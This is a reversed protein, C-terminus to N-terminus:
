QSVDHIQSLRGSSVFESSPLGLLFASTQMCNFGEGNKDGANSELGEGETRVDKQIAELPMM